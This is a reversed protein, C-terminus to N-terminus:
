SANKTKSKNIFDIFAKRQNCDSCYKDKTIEPKDIKKLFQLDSFGIKQHKNLGFVEPDYSGIDLACKDCLVVEVNDFIKYLNYEISDHAYNEAIDQRLVDKSEELAGCEQCPTVEVVEFESGCNPCQEHKM